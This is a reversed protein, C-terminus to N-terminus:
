GCRKSRKVHNVNQHICTLTIQGWTFSYVHISPFPQRSLSFAFRTEHMLSTGKFKFQVSFIIDPFLVSESSLVCELPVIAEFTSLFYKEAAAADRKWGGCWQIVEKEKEGDEEDEGEGEGEEKVRKEGGRGCM